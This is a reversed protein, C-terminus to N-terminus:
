KKQKRPLSSWFESSTMVKEQQHLALVKQSVQEATLGELPNEAQPATSRRSKPKMQYTYKLCGLIPSKLKPILRLPYFNPNTATDL